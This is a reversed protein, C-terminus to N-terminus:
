KPGIWFDFKFLFSQLILLIEVALGVVQTAENLPRDCLGGEHCRHSLELRQGLTREWNTKERLRWGTSVRQVQRCRKALRTCADPNKQSQLYCSYQVSVPRFWVPFTSARTSLFLPVDQCLLEFSIELVKKKETSHSLKRQASEMRLYVQGEHDGFPQRRSQSCSGELNLDPLFSPTDEVWFEWFFFFFFFGALSECHPRSRM